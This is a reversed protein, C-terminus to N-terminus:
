GHTEKEKQKLVNDIYKELTKANTSVAKDLAMNETIRGKNGRKNSRYLTGGVFFVSKWFSTAGNGDGLAHVKITGGVLKGVNIGEALKDYESTANKYLTKSAKFVSRADDRVKYAAAVIAKNVGELTEKKLEGLDGMAKIEFRAKSM